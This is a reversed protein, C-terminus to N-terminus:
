VRFVRFGYLGLGSFIGRVYVSVTRRTEEQRSRLGIVRSGTFGISGRLYVSYPTYPSTITILGLAM